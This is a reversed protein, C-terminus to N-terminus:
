SIITSTWAGSVQLTASFTSIENQPAAWTISQINADGEIVLDDNDSGGMFFEVQAGAEFTDMIEKLTVNTGTATDNYKGELSITAGKEGSIFEKYGGSLKSTCELQDAEASFENSTLGEIVRNGMKLLILSGSKKAM